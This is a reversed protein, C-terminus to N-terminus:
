YVSTKQTLVGEHHRRVRSATPCAKSACPLSLVCRTGNYLESRRFLVQLEKPSSRGAVHLMEDLGDLSPKAGTEINVAAGRTSGRM